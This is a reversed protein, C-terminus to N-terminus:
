SNKITVYTDGDQGFEEKMTTEVYVLAATQFAWNDTAVVRTMELGMEYGDNHVLCGDHCSNNAFNTDTFTLQTEDVQFVGGKIAYNLQYLGSDDNITSNYAMIAGGKLARNRIFSSSTLKINEM